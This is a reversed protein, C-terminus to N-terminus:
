QFEGAAILTRMIAVHRAIETQNRLQLANHAASRARLLEVLSTEGAQWSRSVEIARSNMSEASLVSNRLMDKMATLHSFVQALEQRVNSRAAASRYNTNLETLGSDVARATEAAHVFTINEAEVESIQNFSFLLFTFIFINCYIYYCERYINEEKLITHSHPYYIDRYRM